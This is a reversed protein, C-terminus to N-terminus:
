SYFEKYKKLYGGIIAISMSSIGLLYLLWILKIDNSIGVNSELLSTSTPIFYYLQELQMSSKLFYIFQLGLLQLVLILSVSYITDVILSLVNTVVLIMNMYMLYLLLDLGLAGIHVVRYGSCVYRIGVLGYLVILMVSVGLFLELTYQFIIKYVKRTRSFIITSNQIVKHEFYNGYIVLVGLQPLLFRIISSLFLNYNGFYIYGFIRRFMDGLDSSDSLMQFSELFTICIISTCLLKMDVHLIKTRIHKVARNKPLSKM